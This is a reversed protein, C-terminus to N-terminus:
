GLLVAPLSARSGTFADSVARGGRQSRASGSAASVVIVSAGEKMLKAMKAYRTERTLPCHAVSRKLLSVGGQPDVLGECACM